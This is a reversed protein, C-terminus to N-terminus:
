LTFQIGLIWWRLPPYVQHDAAVEPDRGGYGTLTVLNQGQLYCRAQQLHLRDLWRQPLQYALCLSRLRLFSADTIVADSRQINIYANNAAGEGQTFQQFPKNDGTTRWRDWVEAPKNLLAVGPAEGIYLYDYRNQKVFYFLLDLQWKKFEFHHQLGGYFLTGIRKAFALASDSVKGSADVYTFKYRGTSPDVKEYHLGKIINLPKGVMLYANYTTSELNDFFLLKSQPISINFSTNWTFAGHQLTLANLELELGTNGVVAPYNNYVSSFGTTGPKRYNVIQNTSKHRYYSTRLMIKNRFLGLDLGFELKANREWKFNPAGLRAPFWTVQQDYSLSSLGYTSYYGYDPIQDNGTIGYNARLKGFSLVPLAKQMWPDKSFIWAGGVSWFTAFRTDPAFRSSGDRRVNLNLIYKELFNGTVRGFVASYRYVYNFSAIRDVSSAAEVRELHSNSTFGSAYLGKQDRVDEQFTAGSVAQLTVDKSQWKYDAQPEIIWDSMTGNSFYTFGGIRSGYGYYPNFSNWPNIQIENLQIVNYAAHTKLLLRPLLEYSLVSTIMLNNSGVKYPRQLEAMPNDFTNHEWNLTGDKNYINPTNPPLSSFTALDTRPLKNQENVYTTTFMIRGKQDPSSLTYYARASMKKYGYSGPYVTTEKHYGGSIRFASMTTGGEIALQADSIHATGGLMKKEWDTYSRGTTEWNVLDPDRGPQRVDGDNILAESRMQLYQETNLFRQHHAVHGVGTYIGAELKMKGVGAKKTTILIVGNAGRSGYIATADADKLVEISEIDFVNFMNLPNSAGLPGIPPIPKLANFTLSLSPFPVGDVIYLPRNGATISAQGRLEVKVEGGPLGSLQTINLGPIRGQLALLPDAAPQRAIDKAAVKGINGTLDRRTSTGYAIVITEDLDTVANELQLTFTEGETVYVEKKCYGVCSITLSNKKKVAALIFKGNIDTYTGKDSGNVLVSANQIPRGDTDTILGSISARVTERKPAQKLKSSDKETIVFIEDYYKWMIAKRGIVSSLVSDLPVRDFDVSAIQEDPDLLQESFFAYMRAQEWISKFLGAITISKEHITILREGPKLQAHLNLDAAGTLLLLLLLTKRYM